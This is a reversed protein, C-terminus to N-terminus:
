KKGGKGFMNKLMNSLNELEKEIREPNKEKVKMQRKMWNNRIKKQEPSFSKITKPDKEARISVINGLPTDPMLGSILTVFEQWSMDLSNRLRIGYQKAISAEILDWDERLDYFGENSTRQNFDPM